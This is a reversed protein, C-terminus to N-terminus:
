TGRLVYVEDPYVLGGQQSSPLAGLMGLPTHRAALWVLPPRAVACESAHCWRPCGISPQCCCAVSCLGVPTDCDCLFVDQCDALLGRASCQRSTAFLAVYVAPLLTLRVPATSAPGTDAAGLWTLPLVGARSEVACLGVAMHPLSRLGLRGYAATGLVGPLCCWCTSGNGWGAGCQQFRLSSLGGECVCCAREYAPSLLPLQRGAASSDQLPCWFWM